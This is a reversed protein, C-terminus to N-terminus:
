RLSRVARMIMVQGLQLVLKWILDPESPSVPRITRQELQPWRQNAFGVAALGAM